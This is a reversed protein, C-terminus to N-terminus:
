LSCELRRTRKLRTQILLLLMVCLEGASAGRAALGLDPTPHLSLNATLLM